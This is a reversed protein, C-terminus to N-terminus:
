GRGMLSERFLDASAVDTAKTVVIESLSLTNAERNTGQGVPSTANRSTGLQASSVEIWGEYKGKASGTVGEVKMYIPM